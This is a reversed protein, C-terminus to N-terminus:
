ITKHEKVWFARSESKIQLINKLTENQTKNCKKKVRSFQIGFFYIHWFIYINLDPILVAPIAQIITTRIWYVCHNQISHKHNAKNGSLWWNTKIKNWDFTLPLSLMPVDICQHWNFLMLYSLWFVVLVIFLYM